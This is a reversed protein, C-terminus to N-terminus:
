ASQLSRGHEERLLAQRKLDSLAARAKELATKRQLLFVYLLIFAFFSFYLTLRMDPQLGSGKGGGILPKPHIDRWLRISMYVIPVNMFGVIGFVASFRAKREKDDVFSRLMSYAVYILWLVLFLTLRPTWEWWTNWVPRGWIPGTILVLTGLIVGIEASSSAAIDYKRDRKVLYLISNVFVVFFAIFSVWAAPVHFYFIKQVHGMTREESVFMFILYLNAIMTACVLCAFIRQTVSDKTGDM